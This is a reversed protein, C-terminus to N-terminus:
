RIGNKKLGKSFHITRKVFRIKSKFGTNWSSEGFQRKPFLVNFRILNYKKQKAMYLAYLDLSFDYPPNEWSDFFKVSFINPQANIDYLKSKLYLSEYLSMGSTFIQDFIPRRKRNGKVYVNENWNNKELLEYAVIIDYPDTQLDAHTWGVFESSSNKLGTLIGHGYGLNTQIEVYRAFKYLPLLEEFIKKSNDTSGNNVMVLEINKDGIIKNFKELIVPINKEENYCPIVISLKM